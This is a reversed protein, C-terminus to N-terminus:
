FPLNEDGLDQHVLGEEDDVPGSDSNKDDSNKPTLFQVNQAIVETKYRKNGDKDEWSRTTLKGEIYASKGKKLYTNVSEATKGWVIINHWETKKHSEGDKKYYEDTALSFSAVPQGNQTHRLEPDKGLKGILIVKNVSM